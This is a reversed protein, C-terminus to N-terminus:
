QSKWCRRPFEFVCHIGNFRLPPPKLPTKIKNSKEDSRLGHSESAAAKTSAASPFAAQSAPLVASTNRRRPTVTRRRVGLWKQVSQSLSAPLGRRRSSVARPLFLGTGGSPSPYCMAAERGFVAGNVKSIILRWAHAFACVHIYVCVRVLCVYHIIFPEREGVLWSLGSLADPNDPYRLDETVSRSV